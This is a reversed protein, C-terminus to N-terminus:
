YALFTELMLEDCTVISKWHHVLQFLINKIGSAHNRCALVIEFMAPLKFM